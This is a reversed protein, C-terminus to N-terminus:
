RGGGRADRHGFQEADQADGLLREGPHQARQDILAIHRLRRAALVAALAQQRQGRGALRQLAPQKLVLHRAESGGIAAGTRRRHRAETRHHLADHVVLCAAVDALRMTLGVALAMAFQM